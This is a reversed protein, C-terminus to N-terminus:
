ERIYEKIVQMLTYALKLHKPRTLAGAISVERGTLSFKIVQPGKESDEERLEVNIVLETNAM